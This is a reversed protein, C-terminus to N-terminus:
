SDPCTNTQRKTYFVRNRKHCFSYLSRCKLKTTSVFINETHVFCIYHLQKKLDVLNFLDVLCLNQMYIYLFISKLHPMNNKFSVTLVNWSISFTENHESLNPSISESITYQYRCTDSVHAYRFTRFSLFARSRKHRVILSNM